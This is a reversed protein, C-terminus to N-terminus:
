RVLNNPTRLKPFVETIFIMKYKLIKLIYDLNGFHQFFDLFTKEKKSLPM